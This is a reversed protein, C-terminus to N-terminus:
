QKQAGPRPRYTTHCGGCTSPLGKAASQFAALDKSEAAKAVAAAADGFAKSAKAWGEKDKARGGVMLLQAAEQLMVARAQLGRWARDDQPGADKAADAIAMRSPDILGSMIQATSAIETVPAQALALGAVMFLGIVRM